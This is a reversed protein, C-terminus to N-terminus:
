ASRRPAVKPAMLRVEPTVNASRLHQLDFPEFIRAIVLKQDDASRRLRVRCQDGALDVGRRQRQRDIVGRFLLAEVLDAPEDIHNGVILKGRKRGLPGPRLFVPRNDHADHLAM